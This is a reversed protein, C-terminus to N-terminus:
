NEIYMQRSNAIVMQLRKLINHLLFELNIEHAPILNWNSDSFMAHVM